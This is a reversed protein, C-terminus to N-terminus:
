KAVEVELKDVDKREAFVTYFYESGDSGITVSNNNISEVWVNHNGIPTVNVTISDEHVLGKWYDPLEIVSDSTKGRVYVSNEPGELCAYRLQHNEKTPHDIVFSKTTAAFSGTVKMTYTSQTFDGGINVSGGSTIRLREVAVASQPRTIFVLDSGYDSNTGNKVACIGTGANKHYAGGDEIEFAIGVANNTAGGGQMLVVDHWTDGDSADFATTRNTPRINLRANGYNSGADSICVQGNYKIRFRENTASGGSSNNTPVGFIFDADFSNTANEVMKIHGVGDPSGSHGYGFKLIAESAVNTNHTPTHIFITSTTGTGDPVVELEATPTGQNIGVKGNSTIRIGTIDTTIVAASSSFVPGIHTDRNHNGIVLGSSPMGTMQAETIGLIPVGSENYRSAYLINEALGDHQVHLRGNINTTTNIGVNGGSTIRLREEPATATLRTHFTLACATNGATVNEKIGRIHGLYAYDQAGTNFKGYFSIEGGVGAAVSTTDISNFGSTGANATHAIFSQVAGNGYATGSNGIIIKGTSTIRLRELFSGANGSRFIFNAHASTGNASFYMDQNANSVQTYSGEQDTDRLMLAPTSSRITLEEQPLDTGIGVKGASTIRLRETAGGTSFVMNAQSRFGFDAVVAGTVLQSAAGIYGTTAGSASLDYKHYAGSGSTTGFDAAEGVATHTLKGDAAIRLRENGGTIFEINDAADFGISTDTDGLHFISRAIGVDNGDFTLNANDVLRGAAGAYVVRGTTLTKDEIGARATIIGVADINAVDEYTLTGGISVNGSFTASGVVDLATSPLLTNIGVRNNASDWRFYDGYSLPKALQNNGVTNHGPVGVGLAVGLAICFFDSSSTPATAFIIQSRDIQFASEPEQVVGGLSVIISFASGPFFANGGSTLNFTTLSGNFSSSIDDLKLYNGRQLDRGVYPM